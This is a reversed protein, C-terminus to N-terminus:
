PRSMEERLAELKKELDPQEVPRHGRAMADEYRALAEPARGLARYVDGLHESIVPDGGSLSEARLLETEARLLWSRAESEHGRELLPKARQFFVWGLSDTIFGDEPRVELARSILLEAQDLDEGQEALAYGVYNLAAAHRGDAELVREMWTLAESGRGGEGHLLGIQYLVEVDPHEPVLLAELDSIAGDREGARARLSSRYLQVARRQEALLARDLSDIARALDGREEYLDAVQIRADVYRDQGPEIADLVALADDPKGAERRVVGLFFALESQQPLVAFARAFRGEAREWAEDEYDLFALRLTARLDTPHAREITELTEVAARRQGLEIEADAKAILTAHHEPNIALIENYVGLEGIRDGRNRRSEAIALYLRIDSPHEALGDRLIREATAPDGLGEMAASLLLIGRVQDPENAELWVAVDRAAEFQQIAFYASSLIVAADPSVPDGEDDTLVERAADVEQQEAYLSGLFLRLPLQRNGGDWAHEAFELAEAPRNLKAALDVMHLWVPAEPDLALVRLYAALAEEHRGERALENAVLFEYDASVRVSPPEPAQHEVRLDELPALDPQTPVDAGAPGFVGACGFLGVPGFFVGVLLLPAWAGSRAAGQRM